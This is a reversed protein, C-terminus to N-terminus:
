PIVRFKRLNGQAKTYTTHRTGNDLTTRAYAVYRGPALRKPLSRKWRMTGTAAKFLKPPLCTGSVAKVKRFTQGNKTLFLCKGEQRLLARDVKRIAVDVRRVRGAPGATGRIAKVTRAPGSAPKTITAVPVTGPGPGPGPPVPPAVEGGGELKVAVLKSSFPSRVGAAYIAGGAGLGVGHADAASTPSPGAGNAIRVRDRICMESGM